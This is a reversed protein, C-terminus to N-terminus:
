PIYLRIWEIWDAESGELEIRVSCEVKIKIILSEMSKSEQILNKIIKWDKNNGQVIGTGINRDKNM